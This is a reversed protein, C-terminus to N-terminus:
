GTLHDGQGEGWRILRESMGEMKKRSGPFRRVSGPLPHFLMSRDSSMLVFRPGSRPSITEHPAEQEQEYVFLQLLYVDELARTQQTQLMRRVQSLTASTRSM